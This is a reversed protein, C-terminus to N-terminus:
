SAFSGSLNSKSPTRLVTIIHDSAFCKVVEASSILRICPEHPPDVMPPPPLHCFTSCYPPPQIYSSAYHRVPTRLGSLTIAPSSTRERTGTTETCLRAVSPHQSSLITSKTCCPRCGSLRAVNYVRTVQSAPRICHGLLSHLKTADRQGIGNHAAQPGTM